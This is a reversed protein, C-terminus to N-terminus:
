KKALKYVTDLCTKRMYFNNWVNILIKLKKRQLHIKITGNQIIKLFIFVKEKSRIVFQLQPNRKKNKMFRLLNEKIQKIDHGNIESVDFGFSEWKEKLPELDLVEKVLGYSQIKNYDLLIKLNNLKHKSASM